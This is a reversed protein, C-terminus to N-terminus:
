SKMLLEFVRDPVKSKKQLLQKVVALKQPDNAVLQKIQQGLQQIQQGATVMIKQQKELDSRASAVKGAQWIDKAGSVVASSTKDMMGAFKNTAYRGMRQAFDKSAGKIFDGLAENLQKADTTQLFSAFQMMPGHKGPVMRPKATTKFADPTAVNVAPQQAPAQKVPTPQQAPAQKTPAQQQTPTGVPAAPGAATAHQQQLIVYHAAKVFQSLLVDVNRQFDAAQSAARGAAVV